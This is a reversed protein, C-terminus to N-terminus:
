PRKPPDQPAAPPAVPLALAGGQAPHDRKREAEAEAQEAAERAADLQKLRQLHIQMNSLRFPTFPLVDAKVGASRLRESLKLAADPQGGMAMVVENAFLDAGGVLGDVVIARQAQAEVASLLTGAGPLAATLVKGILFANGMDNASRQRLIASESATFYTAFAAMWRFEDRSAAGLLANGPIKTRKGDPRQFLEGEPDFASALVTGACGTQTPVTVSRGSALTLTMPTGEHAEDRAQNLVQWFGADDQSMPLSGRWLASLEFRASGGPLARGNIATVVQGLKLEDPASEDLWAVRWKDDMGTAQQFLAAQRASLSRRLTGTSWLVFPEIETTDDCLPEAGWAVELTAVRFAVEKELGSKFRERDFADNISGGGTQAWAASSLGALGVGIGAVVLWSRVRHVVHGQNVPRLIGLGQLPAM